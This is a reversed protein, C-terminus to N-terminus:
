PRAMWASVADRLAALDNASLSFSKRIVPLLRNVPDSDDDSAGAVVLLRHPVGMAECLSVYSDNVKARLTLEVLGRLRDHFLANTLGAGHSGVIVAARRLKAVQDSFPEREPVLVECPFHASLHAVMEDENLIRRDGTHGRSVVLVTAAGADGGRGGNRYFQLLAPNPLTYRGQRLIRINTLGSFDGRLTEAPHLVKIRDQGAWGFHDLFRRFFPKMAPIVIPLDTHHLAWHLTPLVEVLFHYYNDAWVQPTLFYRDSAPATAQRGLRMRGALYARVSLFMLRGNGRAYNVPLCFTTDIRLRGDPHADHSLIYGGPLLQGAVTHLHPQALDSGSQELRGFTPGGLATFLRVRLKRRLYGISKDLFLTPKM